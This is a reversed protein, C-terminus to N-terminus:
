RLARLDFDLTVLKHDSPTLIGGWSQANCFLKKTRQSCIIYDIQNFICHNKLRLTWTTINRARKRFATNTIFSENADCFSALIHSNRNRRGRVWQGLFSEHERRQGIKANFDGLIITTDRQPLRSLATTLDVAYIPLLRLVLEM